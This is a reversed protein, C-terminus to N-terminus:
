FDNRGFPGSTRNECDANGITVKKLMFFPALEGKRKEASESIYRWIGFSGHIGMEVWQLDLM